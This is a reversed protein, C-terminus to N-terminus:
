LPSCCRLFDQLKLSSRTRLCDSVHVALELSNLFVFGVVLFCPLISYQICVRVNHLQHLKLPKHRPSFAETSRHWTSRLIYLFGLEELSSLDQIAIRASRPRATLWITGQVGGFVGFSRESFEDDIGRLQLFQLKRNEGIRTRQGREQRIANKERNQTRSRHSSSVSTRYATLCQM